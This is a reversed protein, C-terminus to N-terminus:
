RIPFPSEGRPLGHACEEDTSGRTRLHFALLALKTSNVRERASQRCGRGQQSHTLVHMADTGFPAAQLALRASNAREWGKSEILAIDLV